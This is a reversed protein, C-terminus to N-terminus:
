NKIIKKVANGEATDIILLYIGSTLDSVDISTNASPAGLVVTKISRGNIDTIGVKRVEFSNDSTINVVNNTPNPYVSFKSTIFDNASASVETVGNLTIAINSWTGSNTSPNADAYGNGIYIASSPNATFDIGTALVLSGSVVTGPLDSAGNPWNQKEFAGFNSFGGGQFLIDATALSNSSTVFIALDDAYTEAVSATLTANLTVGTLTGQLEGADYFLGLSAGNFTVPGAINTTLQAFSFTSFLTLFLLTKKMIILKLIQSM